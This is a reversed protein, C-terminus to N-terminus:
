AVDGREDLYGALTAKLGMYLRQRVRLSLGKSLCNVLAPMEATAARELICDLWRRRDTASSRDLLKLFPDEPQKGAAEALGNQVWADKLTKAEGTALARAVAVQKEPDRLRSIKKLAAGNDVLKTARIHEIAAPSLNKILANARDFTAVSLGTRKAADKAFSPFSQLNVDKGEFPKKPKKAKGWVKGPYLEEYIRKREAVAIAFDLASLENRILNEDIEVIRAQAADLDLWIAAIETWGLQRAAALRHCGAVLLLRNGGNPHPRVVIPQQLGIENMSAALAGVRDADVPRLRGADDIAAIAAPFLPSLSGPTM